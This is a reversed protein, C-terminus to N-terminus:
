SPGRRAALPLPGCRKGSSCTVLQKVTDLLDALESRALESSLKGDQFQQSTLYVSTPAVLAGFWDLVTRLGHDVGLYHHPSAGLAVIGIPKGHLSELPLLDLFNKLVGSYTARYVPSALIVASAGMVSALASQTSEGYSDLPRGDCFEVPTAGLDIVAALAPSDGTQTLAAVTAVVHALRGPPTSAGLIIALNM